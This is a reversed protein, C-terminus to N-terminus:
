KRKRIFRWRTKLIKLIRWKRVRIGNGELDITNLLFKIYCCANAYWLWVEHISRTWCHFDLLIWSSEAKHKYYVDDYAQIHNILLVERFMLSQHTTYFVVYNLNIDHYKARIHPNRSNTEVNVKIECNCHSWSSVFQDLIALTLRIKKPLVLKAERTTSSYRM